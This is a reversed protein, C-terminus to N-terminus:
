SFYDQTRDSGGQPTMFESWNISYGEISQKSYYYLAFWFLILLIPIFIALYKHLFDFKYFLYLLLTFLTLAFVVRLPSFPILNLSYAHILLPILLLPIQIYADKSKYLLTVTVLGFSFVVLYMGGTGGYGIFSFLLIILAILNGKNFTNIYRYLELIAYGAILVLMTVVLHPLTINYYISGTYFGLWLVLLLTAEIKKPKFERRVNIIFIASLFYFLLNSVWMTITYPPIYNFSFLEVISTLYYNISSFMFYYPINSKILNVEFDSGIMGSSTSLANITDTIINKDIINFIYVSDGMQEGLTYRFSQLMMFIFVIIIIIWENRKIKPLKLRFSMIFLLLFYCGVVLHFLSTPVKNRVMIDTFIFLSGIIFSFGVAFTSLSNQNKYVMSGINHSMFLIVTTFLTSILLIKM